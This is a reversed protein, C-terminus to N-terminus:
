PLKDLNTLKSFIISTQYLRPNDQLVTNVFSVEKRKTTTALAM